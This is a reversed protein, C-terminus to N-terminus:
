TMWSFYPQQVQFAPPIKRFREVDVRKYEEDESIVLDPKGSSFIILIVSSYKLLNYGVLTGKKQPIRVEVIENQILNNKYAEASLRYSRLAYNDQDERSINMKKATNEGCNGMHIKNYVDLLGDFAM